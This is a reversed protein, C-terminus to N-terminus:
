RNKSAQAKRARWKRPSMWSRDKLQTRICYRVLEPEEWPVDHSGSTLYPSRPDRKWEAPFLAITDQGAMGATPRTETPVRSLEAVLPEVLNMGPGLELHCTQTSRPNMELLYANGTEKELIFDLGFFGSLEFRRAIKEAAALMQSNDIVRVVTAPGYEDDQRVVEVTICALLRGQWCSVACNAESGTIIRQVSVVPHWRQLWPVLLRLDKDVMVRKVARLGGPPASLSLFAKEAEAPTEVLRVGVGGSTGDAKLYAPLPHTALWADLDSKGALIRTDPVCIGLEAAASLLTGRTRVVSFHDPNGLSHKILPGLGSVGAPNAAYIRHLALAAYDDCPVVFDPKASQLASRISGLFGTYHYHRRLALTTTIPHGDPCVADVECGARHLAMALRAPPVWSCTMVLLVNPGM